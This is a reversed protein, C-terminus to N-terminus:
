ENRARCSQPQHGGVRACGSGPTRKNCNPYAGPDRFYVCRTRQMVNGGISAMNRIQASAARWLSQSLAPASAKIGADDAVQSMRALAGISISTNGLMINSLGQLRNIDVLRAPRKVNLKMLDILTTGGALFDGDPQMGERLAAAADSPRVYNFENM